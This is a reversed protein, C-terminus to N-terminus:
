AARGTRGGLWWSAASAAWVDDNTPFDPWRRRATWAVWRQADHYTDAWPDTVSTSVAEGATTFAAGNGAPRSKEHPQM